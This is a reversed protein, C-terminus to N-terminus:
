ASPADGRTFWRQIARSWRSWASAPRAEFAVRLTPDGFYELNAWVSPSVGDRLAATRVRHLATVVDDGAIQARYFAEMYPGITADDVRWRTALVGRAGADLATSVLGHLAQGSLMVGDGSACASFVVLDFPLPQASLDGLDFLGDHSSTAQVVIGSGDYSSPDAM